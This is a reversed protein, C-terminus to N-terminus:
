KFVRTFIDDVHRLHLKPDFAAEIEDRTLVSGIAPDALVLDNYEKNENWARMAPEQVMQYAKQRSVGKRTIALLLAQSAYLGHSLRMNEKIREPYIQLNRVIGIARHIMFDAVISADPGIVREVSSHSIDREHWLAQDEMAALAYARLLRSLGAINESLVPNRKHPMASSGKQGKSFFEEAERVETRQLHRIELAFKELTGGIVALTAFFFAHRDRQIIQNTVPAPLLGVAKCVHAEVEPPVHAFTGVAGSVMGVAVGKRAEVLRSRGRGIEDYFIALKHGLSIPEAHIGHTRGMVLTYRHEFAREKIAEAFEELGADILDCAQCLQVAFSTDLVDSSTMGMHLWRADEGTFEAVCDLFANVDHKTIREIEEIRAVDFKAKERLRASVGAPVINLSEMAECATLEVELWIRYRNEPSWIKEM